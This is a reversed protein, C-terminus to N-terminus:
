LVRWEARESFLDDIASLKIRKIVNCNVNYIPLIEDRSAHYNVLFVASRITCGRYTPSTSRIILGSINRSTARDRNDTQYCAAHSQSPIACDTMRLVGQHIRVYQASCELAHLLARRMTAVIPSTRLENNGTRGGPIPSLRFNHLQKHMKSRYRRRSLTTFVIFYAAACQSWTPSTQVRGKNARRTQVRADRSTAIDRKVRESRLLFFSIFRLFSSSIFNRRPFQERVSLDTALARARLTSLVTGPCLFLFSIKIGTGKERWVQWIYIRTHTSPSVRAIRFFYMRM